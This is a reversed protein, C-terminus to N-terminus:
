LYYEAFTVKEGYRNKKSVTRKKIDHGDEKLDHVRAALRYIGLTRWSSLPNISLGQKLHELLREKQNM